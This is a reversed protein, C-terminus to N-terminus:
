PSSNKWSIKEKVGTTLAKYMSVEDHRTTLVCKLKTEETHKEKPPDQHKYKGVFNTTLTRIYGVLMPLLSLYSSADRWKNKALM